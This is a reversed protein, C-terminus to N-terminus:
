RSGPRSRRNKDAIAIAIILFAMLRLLYILSYKEAGSDRLLALIARELAMLWFAAGFLLFLRDGTKRWFRLFFSGGAWAGFMAAGTLFFYLDTM